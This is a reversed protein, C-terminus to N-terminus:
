SLCSRKWGVAKLVGAASSAKKDPHGICRRHYNKLGALPAWPSPALFPLLNPFNTRFFVLCVPCFNVVRESFFGEQVVTETCHSTLKLSVRSSKPCLFCKNLALDMLHDSRILIPQLTKWYIASSATQLCSVFCASLLIFHWPQKDYDKTLMENCLYNVTKTNKSSNRVKFILTKVKECIICYRFSDKNGWKEVYKWVAFVNRASRDNTAAPLHKSHPLITWCVQRRQRSHKWFFFALVVEFASYVNRHIELNTEM